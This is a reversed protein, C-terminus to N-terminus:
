ALRALIYKVTCYVLPVTAVNKNKREGRAQKDLVNEGKLLRSDCSTWWGKQYVHSGSEGEQLRNNHVRM